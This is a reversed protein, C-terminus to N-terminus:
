VVSENLHVPKSWCVQASKPFSLVATFTTLSRFKCLEGTILATHELFDIKKVDNKGHKAPKFTSIRHIDVM